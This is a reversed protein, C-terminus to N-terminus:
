GIPRWFLGGGVDKQKKKLHGGRRISQEFDVAEMSLERIVGVLTWGLM